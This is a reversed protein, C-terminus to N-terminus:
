KLLGDIFREFGSPAWDLERRAVIRFYAWTSDPFIHWTTWDGTDVAFTWKPLMTHRSLFCLVNDALQIYWPVIIPCYCEWEDWYTLRQVNETKRGFYPLYWGGCNSCQEYGAPPFPDPFSVLLDIRTDM